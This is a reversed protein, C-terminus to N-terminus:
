RGYGISKNELRERIWKRARSLLTRVNSASLGTIREIEEFSCDEVGRLRLVQRQKEPLREILARVYRVEERAELEREPSSAAEVSVEELSEREQRRSVEASRLFDLCLNRLLTVAFAEPNRVDELEDRRDWLRGYAEQLLDEADARDGVLAYAVRYLQPHFPLFRRKFVEVDM